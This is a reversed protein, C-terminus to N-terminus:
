PRRLQSIKIINDFSICFARYVPIERWLTGTLSGLPTENAPIKLSLSTYRTEKKSGSFMLIKIRPIM